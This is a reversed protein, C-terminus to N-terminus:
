LLTLTDYGLDMVEPIGYTVPAPLPLVESGGELWLALKDIFM